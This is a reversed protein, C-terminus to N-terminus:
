EEKRAKFRVLSKGNVNIWVRGDISVKIELNGSVSEGQRLDQDITIEGCEYRIEIPEKNM